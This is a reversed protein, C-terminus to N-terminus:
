LWVPEAFSIAIFARIIAKMKTAQRPNFPGTYVLPVFALEAAPKVMWSIIRVLAQDLIQRGEDWVSHLCGFHWAQGDRQNLVALRQTSPNPTVLVM